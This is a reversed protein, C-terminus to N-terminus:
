QFTNEDDHKEIWKLEKERETEKARTDNSLLAVEYATKVGELKSSLHSKHAFNTFNFATSLITDKTQHKAMWSNAYTGPTLIRNTNGGGAFEM